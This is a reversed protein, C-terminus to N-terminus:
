GLAPGRFLLLAVDILAVVLVSRFAARSGGRRSLALGGGLIVVALAPAAYGAPGPPGAPGLALVVSAALLLMAGSWRSAAPGLRHPLGRVGTRADDDFDPLTNAFHAGSGLLAGAAILWAPVGHAGPRGLGVFAPLLGFSVAYPLVSLSTAKLRLDYGWGSLVAVMHLAGPLLGSLLSLPLSLLLASGAAVAVVRDPVDGRVLPKDSRATRRDRDRDVYDNCWGISLQGALVAAAVALVGRSDRGSSAALAGAVLTVALTPEPHCSRLLAAVRGLGFM